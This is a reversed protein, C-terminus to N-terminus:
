HKRRPYKRVEAIAYLWNKTYRAFNKIFVESQMLM